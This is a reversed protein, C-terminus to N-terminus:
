TSRARSRRADHVGPRPQALRRGPRLARRPRRASLRRPARRPPRARAAARARARGRALRPQLLGVRTMLFYTARAGAEAELEALRLAADLSLDVDHRLILDGERPEGEFFAFRYGGAQAARAARPLPRPRLRLEDDRWYGSSPRAAKPSRSRSSSTGSCSSARGRRLMRSNSTRRSARSTADARRPLRGDLQGHREHRAGDPLARGAVLWSASARRVTARPPRAPRPQVLLVRGRRRGLGAALELETFDARVFKAEPRRAGRARWSRRRSTSAPSGSASPWGSRRRHAAAAASSSSARARRCGRRAARRVLEARPDDTIQAKWSEWTDVM